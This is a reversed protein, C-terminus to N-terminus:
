FYPTAAFLQSAAKIDVSDPLQLVGLPPNGRRM